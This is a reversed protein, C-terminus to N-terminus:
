ELELGGFYAWIWIPSALIPGFRPRLVWFKDFDLDAGRFIPGFGHQIGLSLGLYALIWVPRGLISGLEPGSTGFYTWIWALGALIPGFRPCVGLFLGSGLDLCGLNPGFEGFCARIWTLVGCFLGLDLGSRGFYSWDM